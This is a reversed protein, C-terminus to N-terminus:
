LKFSQLAATVVKMVEAETFPKPLYDFAGHKIATVAIQVDSLGSLLMICRLNPNIKRLESLVQLGDIDPIKIDLLAIDFFERQTMELAQAGSEATFIRHGLPKLMDTIANRVLQEDDMILIKVM